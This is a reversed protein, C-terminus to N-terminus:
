KELHNRIDRLLSAILEGHRALKEVNHAIFFLSVAGVAACGILAWLQAETM